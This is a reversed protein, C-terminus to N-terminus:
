PSLAGAPRLHRPGRIIKRQAPLKRRRVRGSRAECASSRSTLEASRGRPGGELAAGGAYRPEARARARRTRRPYRGGGGAARGHVEARDARHRGRRNRRRAGRASRRAPGVHPPGSRRPHPRRRRSGLRRLVPIELAQSAPEGALARQYATRHWRVVGRAEQAARAANLAVLQGRIAEDDLDCPWGYAALVASDLADRLERLISVLSRDHVVHERETLPEGTRLKAVVNYTGDPCPGAGAITGLQRGVTAGGDFWRGFSFVENTPRLGPLGFTLHQALSADPARGGSRARVSARTSPSGGVAPCGGREEVHGPPRRRGPEGGRGRRCLRRTCLARARFGSSAAGRSVLQM